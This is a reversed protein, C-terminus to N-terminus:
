RSHIYDFHNKKYTWPKELDDTEFVVNPYVWGPQNPALDVGVVKSGPHM